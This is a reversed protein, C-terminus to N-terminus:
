SANALRLHKQVRALGTFVKRRLESVDKCSDNGNIWAKSTGWTREIPQNYQPSYTPLFLLELRKTQAEVFAQVSASKHSSVNDLVVFLKGTPYQKLLHKLFGIFERSRKRYHVEYLFRGTAPEMSGFAYLRKNDGPTPFVSQTGKPMWCARIQSLLNFDSEDVHLWHDGEKLETKAEELRALKEAAEPDREETPGHRPRKWRWELTQLHRRITEVSCSLGTRRLLTKCLLACTWLNTSHGLKRPSKSLFDLIKADHHAEVERPRGSRPQHGLSAMKHCLWKTRRDYLTSLGVGLLKAVDKPSLLSLLLLIVAHLVKRGDANWIEKQLSKRETDALRIMTTM